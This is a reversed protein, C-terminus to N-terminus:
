KNLEATLADLAQALGRFSFLVTVENGVSDTFVLRGQKTYARLRELDADALAQDAACGNPTCTLWPVTMGPDAQDTAVTPQSRVLINVPVVATIHTAADAGKSLAIQAFPQQQGEAVVFTVVECALATATPDTTNRLCRLQWDGYSATFSDPTSSVPPPEPQDTTDTAQALLLPPESQPVAATAAGALFASAVLVIALRCALTGLRSSARM